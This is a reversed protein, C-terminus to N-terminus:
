VMGRDSDGVIEMAVGYKRSQKVGGGLNQEPVSVSCVILEARAFKSKM